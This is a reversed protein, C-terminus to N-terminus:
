KTLCRRDELLVTGPADVWVGARPNGNEVSGADALDM